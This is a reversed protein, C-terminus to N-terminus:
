FLLRKSKLDDRSRQVKHADGTSDETVSTWNMSRWPSDWEGNVKERQLRGELATKFDSSWFGLKMRQSSWEIRLGGRDCLLVFSARIQAGYAACRKFTCSRRNSSDLLWPKSEGVSSTRGGFPRGSVPKLSQVPRFHVSLMSHAGQIFKQTNAFSTRHGDRSFREAASIRKRIPRINTRESLFRISKFSVMEKAM